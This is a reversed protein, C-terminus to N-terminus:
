SQNIRRIYYGARDIMGSYSEIKLLKNTIPLKKQRNWKKGPHQWLLSDFQLLQSRPLESELPTLLIYVVEFEDVALLQVVLEMAFKGDLQLDNRPWAAPSETIM